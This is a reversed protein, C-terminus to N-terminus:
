PSTLEVRIGINRIYCDPNVTHKLQLLKCNQCLILKLPAKGRKTDNEIFDSIYINGLDLIPVLQESGCSRCANIERLIGPKQIM